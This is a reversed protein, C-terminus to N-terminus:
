HRMLPQLDSTHEESKDAADVAALATSAFADPRASDPATAPVDTWSGFGTLYNPGGAKTGAGVVSKKWGGFPQRQVIAGTTGRNIYANGAEVRRMWTQIENEDLSHLGSTLGYDIRNVLDIADDLTAATM